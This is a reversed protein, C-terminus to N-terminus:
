TAPRSTPGPSLAMPHPQCLVDFQPSLGRGSHDARNTGAATGSGEIM